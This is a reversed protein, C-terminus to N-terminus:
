RSYTKQGLFKMKGDYPAINTVEISKSAFVTEGDDDTASVGIVFEGESNPTITCKLGIQGEKCSTNNWLIDVPSNQNQTDM